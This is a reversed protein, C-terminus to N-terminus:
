YNPNQVLNVNKNTEELPIPMLYQQPSNFSRTVNVDVPKIFSSFTNTTVGM